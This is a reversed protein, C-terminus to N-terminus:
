AGPKVAIAEIAILAEQVPLAVVIPALRAPPPSAFARTYAEEAEAYSAAPTLCTPTKVV